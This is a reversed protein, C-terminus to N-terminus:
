RSGASCGKCEYAYLSGWPDGKEYIFIHGSGGSRYNMADAADLRKRAEALDIVVADIRGALEEATAGM